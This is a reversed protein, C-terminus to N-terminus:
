LSFIYKIYNDEVIKVKFIKKVKKSVNISRKSNDM